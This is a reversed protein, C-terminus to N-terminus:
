ALDFAADDYGKKMLVAYREDDDPTMAASGYDRALMPFHRIEGSPPPPQWPFSFCDVPIMPAIRFDCRNLFVGDFAWPVIETHTVFPVACSACVVDILHARSEFRNVFFPRFDVTSSLEVYFDSGRNCIEHANSPLLIELQSRLFAVSGQPGHERVHALLDWFSRKMSEASLNLRLALAAIVGCSAGALPISGCLDASVNEQLFEIVGIHFAILLGGSGFSFGHRISKVSDSNGQATVVCAMPSRYRTIVSAVVVVILAIVLVAKEFPTM